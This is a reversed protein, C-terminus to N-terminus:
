TLQQGVGHVRRRGRLPLHWVAPVQQGAAAGAAGGRLEVEGTEGEPSPCSEAAPIRHDRILCSFSTLDCHLQKWTQIGTLHPIGTSVEMPCVPGTLFKPFKWDTSARRFVCQPPAASFCCLVTALLVANVSSSSSSSCSNSCSWTNIVSAEPILNLNHIWQDRIQSQILPSFGRFLVTSLKVEGLVRLSRTGTSIQWTMWAWTTCGSVCNNNGNVIRITIASTLGTLNKWLM